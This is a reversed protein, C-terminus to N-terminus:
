EEKYEIDYFNVKKLIRKFKDIGTLAKIILVENDNDNVATLRHIVKAYKEGNRTEVVVVDGEMIVYNPARFVYPKKTKDEELVCIAIDM